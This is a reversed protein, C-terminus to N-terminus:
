EDMGFGFLKHHMEELTPKIKEIEYIQYKFHIWDAYHKFYWRKLVLTILEKALERM